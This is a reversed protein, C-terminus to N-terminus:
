DSDLLSDANTKKVLSYLNKNFRSSRGIKALTYGALATILVAPVDRIDPSGPLIQPFITEGLTFYASVVSTTIEPFYRGIRELFKNNKRKGLFELYDGIIGSTASVALTEPFDGVFPTINKINVLSDATGIIREATTNPASNKYFVAEALPISGAITMATKELNSIKM